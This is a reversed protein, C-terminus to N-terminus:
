IKKKLFSNIIENEPINLNKNRVYHPNIYIKTTNINEHGLLQRIIDLPMEQDAMLTAFSHRLHHINIIPLKALTLYKKLLKKIQNRQYNNNHYIMFLYDSEKRNCSIKYKLIENGMGPLLYVIRQHKNKTKVLLFSDNIYDINQFKLTLIESIRCGTSLLITFLLLDTTLHISHTIISNIFKLINGRTLIKSPKKQPQKLDKLKFALKKMPNEFSYNNDLFKFFSMLSKYNDKIVNYSKNNLLLFYNDILTSDIPSYRIVKGTSDKIVYIKDLYIDHPYDNMKTSLYSVFKNLYFNYTSLTTKALRVNNNYIELEELLPKM